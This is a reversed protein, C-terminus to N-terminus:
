NLARQADLIYNGKNKVYVFIESRAAMGLLPTHFCAPLVFEGHILSAKMPWSFLVAHISLATM